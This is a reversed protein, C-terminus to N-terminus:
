LLHRGLESDRGKLVVVAAGDSIDGLLSLTEERACESYHAYLFRSLGIGVFVPRRPVTVESFDGISLTVGLSRFSSRLIRFMTELDAPFSTSARAGPPWSDNNAALRDSLETIFSLSQSYVEVKINQYTRRHPAIELDSGGLKQLGFDALLNVRNSFNKFEHIIGPLLFGALETNARGRSM